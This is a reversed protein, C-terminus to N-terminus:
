NETEIEIESIKDNCSSEVVDYVDQTNDSVAIVCTRTLLQLQANFLTENILKDAFILQERTLKRLKTAYGRALTMSEDDEVDTPSSPSPSEIANPVDAPDMLTISFDNRLDHNAITTATLSDNLGPEIKIRTLLSNEEIHIEPEIMDMHTDIYTEHEDNTKISEADEITESTELEEKPKIYAETEKKMHLKKHHRKHSRKRRKVYNVRTNKFQDPDDVHRSLFKLYPYAWNPKHCDGHIKSLMKDRKYYQHFSRCRGLVTKRNAKPNLSRCLDILEQIAQQRAKGDRYLPHKTNWLCPLRKYRRIFSLWFTRLATLGRM